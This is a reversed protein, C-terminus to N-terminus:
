RQIHTSRRHSRACTQTYYMSHVWMCVCILSIHNPKFNAASMVSEYSFLEFPSGSKKTHLCIAFIQVFYQIKWIRPSFHEFRVLILRFLSSLKFRVSKKSKWNNVITENKERTLSCYKICIMVEWVSKHFFSLYDRGKEKKTNRYVHTHTNIFRNKQVTSNEKHNLSTESMNKTEQLREYLFAYWNLTLRFHPWVLKFCKKFTAFKTSEYSYWILFRRGKTAYQYTILSLVDLRTNKPELQLKARDNKYIEFRWIKQYGNLLDRCYKVENM